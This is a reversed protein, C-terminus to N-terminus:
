AMVGEARRAHVIAAEYAEAKRKKSVITAPPDITRVQWVGPNPAWQVKYNEPLDPLNDDEVDKETRATKKEGEFVRLVRMYVLGTESGVVRLQADLSFDRSVVDVLDGPRFQAVHYAWFNPRKLDDLTVDPDVEIHYYSRAHDAGRRTKALATAPLRKTSM